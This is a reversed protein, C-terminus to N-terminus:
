KKKKLDMKHLTINSGSDSAKSNSFIIKAIIIIPSEFALTAVVAVVVCMVYTPIFNYNTSLENFDPVSKISFMTIQFFPYHILCLPYSLRSLPLWWRHSLFWNIPGGFNYFCAFIIYCLAISWLVRSLADYLGYHLPTLYENNQYFPHNGFVVLLM